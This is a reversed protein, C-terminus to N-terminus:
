HLLNAILRGQLGYADLVHKCFSNIVAVDDEVAIKAQHEIRGVYDDAEREYTWGEPLTDGRDLLIKLYGLRGVQIITEAKELDVKLDPCFQPVARAYAASFIGDPTKILDALGPFNADPKDRELGAPLGIGAIMDSPQCRSIVEVTKIGSYRQEYSGNAKRKLNIEWAGEEGTLKLVFGGPVIRHSDIRAVCHNTDCWSYENEAITIVNAPNRHFSRCQESNEGFFGLIEKPAGKREQAFAQGFGAILLAVLVIFNAHMTRRGSFDFVRAYCLVDYRSSPIRASFTWSLARRM